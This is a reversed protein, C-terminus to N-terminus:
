IGSRGRRASSVSENKREEGQKQRALALAFICFAEEGRKGENMLYGQELKCLVKFKLNPM